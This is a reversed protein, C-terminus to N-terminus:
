CREACAGHQLQPCQLAFRACSSARISCSCSCRGQPFAEGGAHLQHRSCTHTRILGNPLGVYM